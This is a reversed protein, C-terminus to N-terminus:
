LSKRVKVELDEKPIKSLGLAKRKNVLHNLVIGSTTMAVGMTTYYLDENIAGSLVNGLGFLEAGYAGAKVYLYDISDM